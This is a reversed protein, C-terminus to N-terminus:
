TSGGSAAGPGALEARVAGLGRHVLLKVAGESRGMCAAIDAVSLDAALKLAIAQQQPATLKDMAAWVRGLDLRAMVADDVSTRADPPETAEELGVTPRRARVHDIVANAAIQYLWASFPRGKHRYGDIGRLAKFFVESTVDEAAERDRLRAYVYRYVRRM